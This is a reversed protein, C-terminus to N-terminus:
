RAGAKSVWLAGIFAGKVRPLAALVASLVVSLTFIVVLVPNAQWIFPFFLMPGVGLHGVLLVTVYAPGDDARYATFDLGCASCSPEVKLYGCLLRAQGCRPCRNLAGRRVAELLSVAPSTESTVEARAQCAM